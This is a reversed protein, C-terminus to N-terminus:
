KKPFDFLPSWLTPRVEEVMRAMNGFLQAPKSSWNIATSAGAVNRNSKRSQSSRQTWSIRWTICLGHINRMSMCIMGVRHPALIWLGSPKRWRGVGSQSRLKEHHLASNKSPIRGRFTQTFIEPYLPEMKLGTLKGIKRYNEQWSM